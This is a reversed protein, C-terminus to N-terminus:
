HDQKKEIVYVKNSGIDNYSFLFQRNLNSEEIKDEDVFTVFGLGLNSLSYTM